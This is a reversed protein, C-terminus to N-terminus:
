RKDRNFKMRDTGPWQRMRDVNIKDDYMLQGMCSPTMPLDSLTGKINGNSSERQDAAM